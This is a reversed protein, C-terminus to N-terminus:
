GWGKFQISYPRIPPAQLTARDSRPRSTSAQSDLKGITTGGPSLAHWVIFVELQPAHSNANHRHM